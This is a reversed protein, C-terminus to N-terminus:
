KRRKTGRKKKKKGWQGDKKREGVMIIKETVKGKGKGRVGKGRRTSKDGEGGQVRIGKGM